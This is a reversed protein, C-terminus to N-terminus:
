LGGRDIRSWGRRGEVTRMQFHADCVFYDGAEGILAWDALPESGDEHRYDCTFEVRPTPTM